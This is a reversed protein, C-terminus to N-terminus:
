FVNLIVVLYLLLLLMGEFRSIKKHLIMFSVLFSLLVMVLAMNLFLGDQLQIGSVLAAPGLVALSNFTNSGIIDGVAMDGQGKLVAQLSTALEPLSTGIAIMVFGVVAASVGLNAMILKASEILFDAGFYLLAVGAMFIALYKPRFGHKAQKPARKRGELVYVMFAGYIAILLLGELQTVTNDFLVVVTAVASSLLFPIDGKLADWKIFITSAIAAIGLVLGINAINSGLVNAVAISPLGKVVAALSAGLEPLSTGFAVITAGIVFNSIGFAKAFHIASDTVLDAGKILAALSVLFVALELM